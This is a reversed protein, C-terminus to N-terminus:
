RILVIQAPTDIYKWNQDSTLITKQLREATAICLRDGISLGLHRTTSRLIGARWADSDIVSEVPIEMARIDMVVNDATRGIDMLRSVVEALNVTNISSRDLHRMVEDAGTELRLLALLASADLLYTM